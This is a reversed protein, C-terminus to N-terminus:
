LLARRSLSVFWAADIDFPCYVACRRCGTCEWMAREIEDILREDPETAEQFWPFVRGLLFKRRRIIRRLLEARYAPAHIIEGSTEYFHCAHTCAGCRACIDLYYVLPRNSASTLVEVFREM